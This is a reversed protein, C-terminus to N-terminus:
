CKSRLRLHSSGSIKRSESIEDRNTPLQRATYEPPTNKLDGVKRLNPTKKKERQGELHFGLHSRLHTAIAEM